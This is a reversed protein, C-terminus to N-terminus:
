SNNSGSQPELYQYLPAAIFYVIGALAIGGLVDVVYHYRLYVTSFILSTVIVMMVYFYPKHFKYSYILTLLAIETHGSPFCDRQIKELNNLMSRIGDTLLIGNLPVTQYLDLLFRPGIAPFIVYGIYSLYFGLVIVYIFFHFAEPQKRYLLVALVIPLFYFSAYVIQLYETLIPFIIRELWVTPHIGFFYLDIAILTKDIDVPNIVHVLHQLEFFNVPIFIVPYFDWLTKIIGDLKLKGFLLITIIIISNIIIFTIASQIKPYYIILAALVIVQYAITVKDKAQYHNVPPFM